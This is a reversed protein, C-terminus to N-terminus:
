ETLQSKIKNQKEQMQKKKKFDAFRLGLTTNCLVPSIRQLFSFNVLKGEHTYRNAHEKLVPPQYKYHPVVQRAARAHAEVLEDNMDIWLSVCHFTLVFKRSVVELYIYPITKDSYYVFTSRRADYMMLVNGFPTHEMVMSQPSVSVTVKVGSEKEKKKEARCKNLFRDTYVEVVDVEPVTPYVANTVVVVSTLHWLWQYLGYWWQWSILMRWMHTPYTYMKKGRERVIRM